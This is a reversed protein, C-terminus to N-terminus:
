RAEGNTARAGFAKAIVVLALIVLIYLLSTSAASRLAGNDYNDFVVIALLRTNSTFLFLAASLERMALMLLLLVTSMVGTKMLPLTVYTVARARTSGLLVASDELDKDVQLISASMGRYGQPLYIAIFAIILVVITGYVPLPLVLWTWLLGLGMVIAPIALPLMAVFELSKRGPTKTRYVLYSLYFALAAGLVAVCVAVLVSNRAADLFTASQLTQFLSWFSLADEGFLQGLNSVYPSSQLSALLLAVVPLVIALAFYVVAFTLGVGRLKGIDMMRPKMGKGSVTTFNRKMVVRQQIATVAILVITLVVAVAAAENGRAPASNMLRYIFTPLTEIQGPTGIMQAVPFNEMTLAFILVGSGLIAPTVLPFTVTSLIKGLSGGHVSAAEELDPNMLAMAGHILLFAYPAYYLALVFVLGPMTYVNFLNGLGIGRTLLNLYGTAPGALLSWALAGVLSPLFMPAIGIFYIIAKGWINTRAALFALTGGIFMALVSSSTAVVLSNTLAVMSQHSSLVKFNELTLGSLGISGPRPTSSSFASFLILAVPMLILITLLALMLWTPMSKRFQHGLQGGMRRRPQPGPKVPPPTAPRQDPRKRLDTTAASM